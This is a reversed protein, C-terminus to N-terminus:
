HQKTTKKTVNILKVTHQGIKTQKAWNILDNQITESSELWNLKSESQKDGNPVVESFQTGGENQKAISETKRLAAKKQDMKRRNTKNRKTKNQEFKNRKTKNAKPGKQEM